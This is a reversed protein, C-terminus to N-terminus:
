NIYKHKLSNINSTDFTSEAVFEDYDTPNIVPDITKDPWNTFNYFQNKNKFDTRRLIWM